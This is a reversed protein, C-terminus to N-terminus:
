SSANPLSESPVFTSRRFTIGKSLLNDLVSQSFVVDYIMIKSENNTTKGNDRHVRRYHKLDHMDIRRILELAGIGRGKRRLGTSLKRTM